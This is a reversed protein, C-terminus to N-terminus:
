KIYVWRTKPSLDGRMSEVAENTGCETCIETKNDVRSLSGPYKGINKFSPVAGGCRLCTHDGYIKFGDLQAKREEVRFAVKSLFQERSLKGAQTELGIFKRVIEKTIPIVMDDCDLLGIILPTVKRDYHEVRSLFEECNQRTITRIGVFYCMNVLRNLWYYAQEENMDIESLTREFQWQLIM